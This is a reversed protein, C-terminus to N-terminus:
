KANEKDHINIMCRDILVRYEMGRISWMTIM